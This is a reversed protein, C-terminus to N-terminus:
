SSANRKVIATYTAPNVWITKDYAMAEEKSIRVSQGTSINKLMIMGKRARKLNSEKSKPVGKFLKSARLGTNRKIEEYKEPNDAYTKERTELIKIKSEDKHKKGYFPNKEGCQKQKDPVGLMWGTTDDGEFFLARNEGNNYIKGGKSFGVYEGSLIMPHSRHLRVVKNTLVHKVTIYDPNHYSSITAIGKNWYRPDAVVDHHIHLEKEHNLCEKYDEFESLIYIKINESKVCEEFDEVSSSGYYEKGNKDIINKGNFTCNSKSGIYYYPRINSKKRDVFEILYVCHM